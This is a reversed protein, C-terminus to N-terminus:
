SNERINSAPYDSVPALRAAAILELAWDLAERFGNGPIAADRMTELSLLHARELAAKDTTPTM